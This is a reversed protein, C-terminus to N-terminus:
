IFHLDVRNDLMFIDAAGTCNDKNHPAHVCKDQPDYRFHIFYMLVRIRWKRIMLMTWICARQSCEITFLAKVVFKEKYFVAAILFADLDIANVGMHVCSDVDFHLTFCPDTTTNIKCWNIKHSWLVSFIDFTISFNVFCIQLSLFIILSMNVDVCFLFWTFYLFRSLSLNLGYKRTLTRPLM